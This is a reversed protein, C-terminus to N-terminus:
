FCIQDFEEALLFVFNENQIIYNGDPCAYLQTINSLNNISICESSVSKERVSKCIKLYEEKSLQVGVVTDKYKRGIIISNNSLVVDTLPGLHKLLSSNQVVYQYFYPEVIICDTPPRTTTTCLIIILQMLNLALSTYLKKDM